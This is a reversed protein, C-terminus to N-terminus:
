LIGLQLRAAESMREPTWPPDWVMDVYVSIVGPLALVRIEVELPLSAAVPCGPSTLTMRIVVNGPPQVDIGYILGMEYINVPIEPDYVTRLVEVIREESVAAQAPTQRPAAPDLAPAPSEAAAKDGAAPMAPEAGAPVAERAGQVPARRRGFMDRLRM